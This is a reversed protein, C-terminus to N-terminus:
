NGNSAFRQQFFPKGKKALWGDFTLLNPYLKTHRTGAPQKSSKQDAM